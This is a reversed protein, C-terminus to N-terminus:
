AIYVPAGIRVRNYLETVDEILMRICGHSANTGISSRADTGHIGAGDYIGLWRAKIPNEPGPPIVTGRLKGAWDSDPVHWAPNIAKNQITYKGAPTELGVQGVAIPYTRVLKLRKYLRLRFAGRNITVVTRYKRALERTTIKPRSRQVAIRISHARAPPTGLAREVRRRLDPGDVKLGARGPVKTLGAGTFEVTADRPSREVKREIRRTFRRVAARDYRVRLALEADVDKGTVARLARSVVNGTRSREVAARVSSRLDAQAGAQAAALTFRRGAARVVVPADLDAQLRRRLTREAARSNLGGVPVGGVRVGEAIRDESHKDFAYVGVAGALVLAVALGVSILSAVRV